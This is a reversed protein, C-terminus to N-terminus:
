LGHGYPFFCLENKISCLKEEQYNDIFNSIHYHESHKEIRKYMDKTIQIARIWKIPNWIIGLVWVLLLISISACKCLNKYQLLVIIPNMITPVIITKTFKFELPVFMRVVVVVILVTIFDTRFLKYSKKYSLLIDLLLILLFSICLTIFLSSASFRM